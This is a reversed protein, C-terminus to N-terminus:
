NKAAEKLFNKAKEKFSQEGKTDKISNELVNWEKIACYAFTNTSIRPM